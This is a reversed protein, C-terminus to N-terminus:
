NSLNTKIVKDGASLEALTKRVVQERNATLVYREQNQQVLAQNPIDSQNKVLKFAMTQGPFAQGDAYTQEGPIPYAFQAEILGTAPDAAPSVEQLDFFVEQREPLILRLRKNRVQMLEKASLRATITLKKDNILTVLKEGPLVQKGIVPSATTLVGDFPACINHKELYLEALKLKAKASELQNQAQELSFKASDHQSSSAMKKVYTQRIRNYALTEQKVKTLALKHQSKALILQAKADRSDLRVLVEGKAVRQGMAVRNSTVIGSIQSAITQKQVSILEGLLDRVLLPKDVFTLTAVETAPKQQGQALSPVALSLLILISFLKYM